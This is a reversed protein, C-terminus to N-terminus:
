AVREFAVYPIKRTTRAHHDAIEPNRRVFEAHAREWAEGELTVARVTLTESGAEITVEPHAMLNVYWSPHNPSGNFSAIVVMKGDVMCYALPNTRIEGSKVGVTHLLLLPFGTWRGGVVGGNARFEEIVPNNYESMSM